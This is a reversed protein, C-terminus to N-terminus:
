TKKAYITMQDSQKWLWLIRALPSVLAKALKSRRLRNRTGPEYNNGYFSYQLSGLLGKSHKEYEIGQVEFAAKNLMATLTKPSFLFLHRPCDLHYWKEKFVRANFSSANPTKLLLYGQPKLLTCIKQLVSFPDNVHEIYSWATIVDFFGHEYPADSITGQFVDLGHVESATKVANESLDLGYAKCNTRDRLLALFQGSGCGVDLVRSDASIIALLDKRIPLRADKKSKANGKANHPQYNQPYYVGLEDLTIQPSMYILGCQACRVYRFKGEFGHLRDVGNFLADAKAIGCFNCQIEQTKIM